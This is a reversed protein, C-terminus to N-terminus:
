DDDEFYFEDSLREEFIKGIRMFEKEDEIPELIIDDGEYVRRLVILEDDADWVEENDDIIALLAVYENNGEAFSDLEQFKHDNGQEDTVSVILPESNDREEDDTFIDGREDLPKNKKDAM